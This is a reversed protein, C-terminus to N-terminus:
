EYSQKSVYKKDGGSKVLKELADTEWTFHVPNNRNIQSFETEVKLIGTVIQVFPKEAVTKLIIYENVKQSLSDVATQEAKEQLNKEFEAEMCVKDAACNIIVRDHCNLALLVLQVCIFTFVPILVSAELTVSGKLKM